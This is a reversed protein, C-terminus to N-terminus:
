KKKLVWAKRNGYAKMVGLSKVRVKGAKDQAIGQMLRKTNAPTSLLHTTENMINLKDRFYSSHIM